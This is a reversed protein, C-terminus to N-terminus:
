NRGIKHRPSEGAFVLREHRIIICSEGVVKGAQFYCQKAVAIMRLPMRMVYTDYESMDAQM